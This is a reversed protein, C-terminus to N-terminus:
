KQCYADQAAHISARRSARGNDLQRDIFVDFVKVMSGDDTLTLKHIFGEHFDQRGTKGYVYGHYVVMREAEDIDMKVCVTGTVDFEELYRSQFTAHQKRNRDSIRLSSPFTHVIFDPTTLGALTAERTSSENPDWHIKDWQNATLFMQERLTCSM